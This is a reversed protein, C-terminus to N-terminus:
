KSAQFAAYEQCPRDTHAISALNFPLPASMEVAFNRSNFGVNSNLALARWAFSIELVSATNLIAQNRAFESCPSSNSFMDIHCRDRHFIRVTNRREFFELGVAFVM